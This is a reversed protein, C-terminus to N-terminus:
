EIKMLNGGKALCIIIGLCCVMVSKGYPHIISFWYSLAGKSNPLLLFRKPKLRCTMDVGHTNEYYTFYGHKVYFLIFYFYFIPMLM